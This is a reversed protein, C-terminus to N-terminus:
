KFVCGEFTVRLDEHFVLIPIKRRRAEEIIDQDMSALILRYKQAAEILKLDVPVDKEYKIKMMKEAIRLAIKAQGSRKGKQKAINELEGVVEQLIYPEITEGLMDEAIRILDKGYKAILMLLSTDFLVKMVSEDIKLM